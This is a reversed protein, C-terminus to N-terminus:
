SNAKLEDELQKLLQLDESNPRYIRGLLVRDKFVKALLLYNAFMLLVLTVQLRWLSKILTKLFICVIHQWETSLLLLWFQGAVLFLQFFCM